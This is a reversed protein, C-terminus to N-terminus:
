GRGIRKKHRRAARVAKETPAPPDLLADAFARSQERDLAIRGHADITREAERIASDVIFDSLSRGSLFSARELLTKSNPRIRVSLRESKSGRLGEDGAREMRTM